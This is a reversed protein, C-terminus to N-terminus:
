RPGGAAHARRRQTWLKLGETFVVYGAVIALSAALLAPPMPVFGFAGAISGLYPICLAAVMVVVTALGLLRGPRSKLAPRATRLVLVVALETLLSIVFWATQFTAQDARFGLLLVAFALLDFASSALGFVVMFRRVDRVNWRQAREVHEPDVNDTSVAASPIDSLFNNLLIQKAALPLFPLLPTALAMSVMNGFNASTTINIYKM